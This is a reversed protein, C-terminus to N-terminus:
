SGVHEVEALLTSVKPSFLMLHDENNVFAAFAVCM